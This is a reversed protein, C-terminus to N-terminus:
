KLQELNTLLAVNVIDYLNKYEPVADLGIICDHAKFDENRNKQYYWGHSIYFRNWRIHEYTALLKLQDNQPHKSYEYLTKMTKEFLPVQLNSEKKFNNNKLWSIENQENMEIKSFFYNLTDDVNDTIKTDTKKLERFAKDYPVVVNKKNGAFKNVYDYMNGYVSNVVRALKDDVILDYSYLEDIRGFAIVTLSNLKSADEASISNLQELKFYNDANRIHVAIVQPVGGKSDSKILEKRADCIIANALKINVDDDGLAIVITNFTQMKGYQEGTSHDLLNIFKDSTCSQELYSILPFSIKPSTREFYKNIIKNKRENYRHSISNKASNENKVDYIKRLGYENSFLADDRHELVIYFPHEEAYVGISNRLDNDVITACFLSEEFNNNVFATDIYLQNLVKKNTNGFGLFLAHYMNDSTVLDTELQKKAYLLETRKQSFVRSTLHSENVLDLQFLASLHRFVNNKENTTLPQTQDIKLNFSSIIFELLRGSVEHKFTERIIKNKEQEYKEYPLEAKTLVYFRLFRNIALKAERNKYYAAINRIENFITAINKVEDAFVDPSELTFAFLHVKHREYFVKNKKQKLVGLSKLLSVGEKYRSSHYLFNNKMVEICLPNQRHFPSLHNGAFIIVHKKKDVKHKAVISKALTVTYENLDSFIYIETKEKKWKPMTKIVILSYIEYSVTATILSILMLGAYVSTAIYVYYAIFHTFDTTNPLGEFQFAGFTTYIAEWFKSVAYIGKQWFNLDTFLPFNLFFLRVATVVLAIVVLFFIEVKYKSHAFKRRLHIYLMMSLVYLVIVM